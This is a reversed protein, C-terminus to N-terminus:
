GNMGVYFPGTQDGILEFGMTLTPLRRKTLTACIQLIAFETISTSSTITCYTVTYVLTATVRILSLGYAGHCRLGDLVHGFGAPEWVGELVAHVSHVSFYEFM